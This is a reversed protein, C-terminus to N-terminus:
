PAVNADDRRKLIHIDSSICKNLTEGGRYKRDYKYIGVVDARCYMVWKRKKKKRIRYKKNVQSFHNWLEYLRNCDHQLQHIAKIFLPFQFYTATLLTSVSPPRTRSSCPPLKLLKILWAPFSACFITSSMTSFIGEYLSWAVYSTPLFPYWGDFNEHNSNQIFSSIHKLNVYKLINEM